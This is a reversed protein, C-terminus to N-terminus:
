YLGKEMIWDEMLYGKGIDTNCREIKEFGLREYFGIAKNQHNVDLRLKTQNENRAIMAVEEILAKGYGKGQTSPLLYLKHIKTVEPLYDKQYGVYGVPTFRTVRGKIYGRETRKGPQDAEVLLKFVVGDATQKALEDVSYMMELMYAIQERSLIEGFTDPWTAHAIRRITEYEAPTAPLIRYSPNM